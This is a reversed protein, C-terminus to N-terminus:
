GYLTHQTVPGIYQSHQDCASCHLTNKPPPLRQHGKRRQRQGPWHPANEHESGASLLGNSVTKVLGLAQLQQNSLSAAGAHLDCAHKVEYLCRGLIHDLASLKNRLLARPPQTYGKVKHMDALSAKLVKVAQRLPRIRAM